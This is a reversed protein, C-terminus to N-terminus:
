CVTFVIAAGLVFAFAINVRTWASGVWNTGLTFFKSNDVWTGAALDLLAEASWRSAGGGGGSASSWTVLERSDIGASATWCVFASAVLSL